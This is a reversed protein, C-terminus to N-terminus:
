VTCETRSELKQIFRKEAQRTLSGARSMCPQRYRVTQCCHRTSPHPLLCHRGSKELEIRFLSFLRPWSEQGVSLRFRWLGYFSMDVVPLRSTPADLLITYRNRAQFLEERHTRASLIIGCLMGKNRVTQHFKINVM